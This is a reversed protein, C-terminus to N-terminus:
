RFGRKLGLGKMIGPRVARQGGLVKQLLGAGGARQGGVLSRQLVKKMLPRGGGGALAGFMRGRGAM